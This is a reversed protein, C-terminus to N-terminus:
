LQAPLPPENTLASLNTLKLTNQLQPRIALLEKFVAPDAM